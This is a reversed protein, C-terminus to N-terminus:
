GEEPRGRRTAVVTRLADYAWGVALWIPLFVAFELAFSGLERLSNVVLVAVALPPGENLAFATLPRRSIPRM